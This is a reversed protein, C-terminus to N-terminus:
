IHKCTFYKKKKSESNSHHCSMNGSFFHTAENDLLVDKLNGINVELVVLYETLRIRGHLEQVCM